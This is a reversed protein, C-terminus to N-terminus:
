SREQFKGHPNLCRATMKKRGPEHFPFAELTRVHIAAMFRRSIDASSVGSVGDVRAALRADRQVHSAIAQPVSAELQLASSNEISILPKGPAALDGVDAWKKTVM